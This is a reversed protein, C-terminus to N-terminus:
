YAARAPPATSNRVRRKARRQKERDGFRTSPFLLTEYLTSQDGRDAACPLAPSLCPLAPSLRSATILKLGIIVPSQYM